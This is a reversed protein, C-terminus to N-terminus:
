SGFNKALAQEVEISDLATMAQECAKAEIQKIKALAKHLVQRKGKQFFDALAELLATTAHEISDGGLGEAFQEDTIKLRDADPLCVAFLVDCVLVPDSALRELAEGGANLELLDFDLLRRVRKIAAVSIEVQWHRDANDTFSRSM